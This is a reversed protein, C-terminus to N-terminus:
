LLKTKHYDKLDKVLNEIRNYEQVEEAICQEAYYSAIDGSSSTYYTMYEMGDMEDLKRELFKITNELHYITMDKIRILQGSKTKWIKNEISM